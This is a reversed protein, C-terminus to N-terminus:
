NGPRHTESAGTSSGTIRIEALVTSETFNKSGIVLPEGQAPLAGLSVAAVLLLAIVVLLVIGALILM